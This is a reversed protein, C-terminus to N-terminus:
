FDLNLKIEKLFSNGAAEISYYKKFTEFSEQRIKKCTSPNKVAFEIKSVLEVSSKGLLATKM